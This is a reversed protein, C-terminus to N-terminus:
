EYRHQKLEKFEPLSLKDSEKRICKLLSQILIDVAYSLSYRKGNVTMETELLQFLSQKHKPLLEDDCSMHQETFADVVPRFPEILDDALNFANLESHHHLGMCPTLGYAALTRAICGRIIAYGYNLSSNRGDMTDGRHFDDGYLVRFYYAAAVAEVNGADGSHVSRALTLLYSAAEEKECMKLCAAQNKIKQIVIQQWLRKKNPETQQIQLNLMGLQRSHQQFPLVTCCPMHKEDCLYVTVRNQSLETLASATLVVQRHEIMMADLDELPFTITKDQQTVILQGNRVALSAPNQIFLHRYGM